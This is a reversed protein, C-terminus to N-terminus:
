LDEESTQGLMQLYGPIARGGAKHLDKRELTLSIVELSPSISAYADQFETYRTDTDARGSFVYDYYAIEDMRGELVTRLSDLGKMVERTRQMADWHRAANKPKRQLVYNNYLRTEEQLKLDFVNQRREFETRFSTSDIKEICFLRFTGEQGRLIYAGLADQFPDPEEKCGASLVCLLSLILVKTISRM